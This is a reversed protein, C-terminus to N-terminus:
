RDRRMPSPWRWYTPWSPQSSRRSRNAWIAWATATWTAANLLYLGAYLWDRFGMSIGSNTAFFVVGVGISLLCFAAILLCPFICIVAIRRGVSVPKRGTAEGDEAPAQYPNENMCAM